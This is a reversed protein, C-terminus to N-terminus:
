GAVPPSKEKVEAKNAFFGLASSIGHLATFLIAAIAQIYILVPDNLLETFLSFSLIEPTLGGGPLFIALKGSPTTVRVSLAKNENTLVFGAWSGPQDGTVSEAIRSGAPL